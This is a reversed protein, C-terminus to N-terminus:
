MSIVCVCVCCVCVSVCLSAAHTATQHQSHRKLFPYQLLVVLLVLV